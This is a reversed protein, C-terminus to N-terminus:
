ASGGESRRKKKASGGASGGSPSKERTKGSSSAVGDGGGGTSIREMGKGTAKQEKGAKPPRPTNDTKWDVLKAEDEETCGAM